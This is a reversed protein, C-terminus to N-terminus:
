GRQRRVGSGQANLAVIDLASRVLSSFCIASEKQRLAPIQYFGSANDSAPM